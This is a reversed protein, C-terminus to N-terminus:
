LRQEHHHSWLVESVWLLENRKTNQPIPSTLANWTNGGDRSIEILGDDTGVALQGFRLPSEHLSTITGFPVNGSRGGRTLDTSLTEWNEGQDFSRHLRNSAM